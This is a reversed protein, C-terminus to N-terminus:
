SGEIVHIQDAEMTIGDRGWKIVRNLIRETKELDADESIVQKKIEYKRSIMKILPEAASREGGSTIDDGNVTAVIHEGKICSQWVCPCTTGRTLEVDNLTSALEEDWNQAADRRGYLSCCGACTNM